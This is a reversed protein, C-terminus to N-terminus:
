FLLALRSQGWILHWHLYYVLRFGLMAGFGFRRLLALEILGFLFLHGALYGHRWAPGASDTFIQFVPEVTAAVLIAAVGWLTQGRQPFMRGIAILLALPLLHFVTEAVVAFAPYFLLAAPLAVNIGAPFPAARDVVVTPVAFATAALAILLWAGPGPPAAYRLWGTRALWWLSAMGVAGCLIVAVLPDLPGFYRALAPEGAQALAAIATAAAAWCLVYGRLPGALARATM